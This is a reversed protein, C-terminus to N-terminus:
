CEGTFFGRLLYRAEELGERYIGAGPYGISVILSLAINIRELTSSQTFPQSATQRRHTDILHDRLRVLRNEVADVDIKLEVAPKELAEEIMDLINRLSELVFSDEQFHLDNEKRITPNVLAGEKEM